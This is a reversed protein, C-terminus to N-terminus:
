EVSETPAHSGKGVGGYNKLNIASIEEPTLITQYLNILYEGLNSAHEFNMKVNYDEYVIQQLSAVDQKDLM